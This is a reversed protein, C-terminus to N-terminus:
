TKSAEEHAQGGYGRRVTHTAIRCRLEKDTAVANAGDGGFGWLPPITLPAPDSVLGFPGCRYSSVSAGNPASTWDNRYRDNPGRALASEWCGADDIAEEAMLLLATVLKRLPSLRAAEFSVPGATPPPQLGWVQRRVAPPTPVPPRAGTLGTCRGGRMTVPRHGGRDPLPSLPPFAQGYVCRSLSPGHDSKQGQGV